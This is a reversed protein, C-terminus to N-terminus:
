WVEKRKDQGQRQRERERERKILTQRQTQTDKWTNKREGVTGRDKKRDSDRINATEVKPSVPCSCCGTFHRRKGTGTKDRSEMVSDLQRRKREKKKKSDKTNMRMTKNGGGGGGCVFGFSVM